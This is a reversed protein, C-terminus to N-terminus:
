KGHLSAVFINERKLSIASSSFASDAAVSKGSRKGGGPFGGARPEDLDLLKQDGSEVPRFRRLESTERSIFKRRARLSSQCGQYRRVVDSGRNADHEFVATSAGM